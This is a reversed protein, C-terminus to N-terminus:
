WYAAGGFSGRFRRRCVRVDKAILTPVCRETVGDLAGDPGWRPSIIIAWPLTAQRSGGQTFKSVCRETVGDLPSRNTPVRGGLYINTAGDAPPRNVPVRESNFRQVWAKESSTVGLPRTFCEKQRARSRAVGGSSSRFRRRCVHMDNAIFTQM